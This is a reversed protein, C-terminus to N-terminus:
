STSWVLYRGVPPLMELSDRVDEPLKDRVDQVDVLVQKRQEETPQKGLVCEPDDLAEDGCEDITGLAVGVYGPTFDGSGTYMQTFGLGEADFEFDQHEEIWANLRPTLPIGYIVTGIAYM